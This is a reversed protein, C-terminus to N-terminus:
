LEGSAVSVVESSSPPASIPEVTKFMDILKEVRDMSEKEKLVQALKLFTAQSGLKGQWKTLCASCQSRLNLPHDKHITAIDVDKLDLRPALPEWETLKESFEVCQKFSIPVDLQQSTLGYRLLVDELSVMRILDSLPFSSKIIMLIFLDHSYICCTSVECNNCNLIVFHRIVGERRLEVLVCVLLGTSRCTYLVEHIDVGDRLDSWRM